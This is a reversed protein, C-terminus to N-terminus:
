VSWVKDSWGSLCVSLIDSLRTRDATPILPHSASASYINVHHMELLPIRHRVHGRCDSLPILKSFAERM